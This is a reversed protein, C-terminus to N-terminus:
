RIVPKAINLLIDNYQEDIGAIHANEGFTKELMWQFLDHSYQPEQYDSIDITQDMDELVGENILGIAVLKELEEKKFDTKTIYLDTNQDSALEFRFELSFGTLDKMKEEFKVLLRQYSMWELTYNQNQM